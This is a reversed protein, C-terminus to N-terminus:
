FVLFGFQSAGGEDPTYTYSPIIPFHSTEKNLNKVLKDAVKKFRERKDEPLKEEVKKFAYIMKQVPVTKPRWLWNLHHHRPNYHEYANEFLTNNKDIIRGYERASNDDIEDNSVFDRLFNVYESPSALKKLASGKKEYTDYKASEYRKAGEYEALGPVLYKALVGKEDSELQGKLKRRKTIM